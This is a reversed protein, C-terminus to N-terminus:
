GFMKWSGGRESSSAISNMATRPGGVEERGEPEERPHGPCCSQKEAPAGLRSSPPDQEAYDHDGGIAQDRHKEKPRAVLDHEHFAGRDVRRLDQLLGRPVELGRVPQAQREIGRARRKGEDAEDREVPLPKASLRNALCRPWTRPRYARRDWLQAPTLISCRALLTGPRSFRPTRTTSASSSPTAAPSLASIPAAAIVSRRQEQQNPEDDKTQDVEETQQEGRLSDRRGGGVRGSPRIRRRCATTTLTKAAVARCGSSSGRRGGAGTCSWRM